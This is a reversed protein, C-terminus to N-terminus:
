EDGELSTPKEMVLAELRGEARMKKKFDYLLDGCYLNEEPEWTNHSEDYGKWKILYKWSKREGRGFPERALIAEVEFENDETEEEVPVPILDGDEDMLPIVEFPDPVDELQETFDVVKLKEIDQPPQTPRDNEDTCKKLRDYHVKPYIGKKTPIKLTVRIGDKTIEEVRYPGVWRFALKKSYGPKVKPIWVWVRDGVKISAGKVKEQYKEILKDKNRKLTDEVHKRVFSWERMTKARWKKQDYEQFEQRSKQLIAEMPFAPDWGHFLYFPTEGVDVRYATNLAFAMHRLYEDWDKQEPDLCFLKICGFIVGHTRENQGNGQPRYALTAIHKQGFLKMVMQFLKSLFQSGRDSRIFSSAGYRLLIEHYYLTATEWATIDTMPFLWVMRTFMDQVVMVYRYGNNSEPFPGTFDISLYQMPHTACINRKRQGRYRPYDKGAQCDICSKVHHQITARLKPWWFHEAIRFYTMNIGLHGAIVENHYARLIDERLSPPIVWQLRLSKRASGKTEGKRCLIGDKTLCFKDLNQRMIRRIVNGISKDKRGKLHNIVTQMWPVDMQAEKIRQRRQQALVSLSAEFAKNKDMLEKEENSIMPTNEHAGCIQKQLQSRTIVNCMFFTANDQNHEEKANNVQSIWDPLKNLNKLCNIVEPSTNIDEDKKLVEGALYDAAGNYARAVHFIQIEQFQKKLTNIEGCLEQLTPKYVGMVKNLQDVVLKSDGFCMISSIGLQIAQTLGDRIALYEQTNVTGQGYKTGKAFVVEWEPLKWIVFGTSSLPTKVKAAGDFTLIYGEKSTDIEPIPSVYVNYEKPPAFKQMVEDAQEPTLYRTSILAATAVGKSPKCIVEFDFQSLEIAWRELRGHLRASTILWKFNTRRSIVKFHAGAVLPYFTKIAHFLALVEREASHWKSEAEKLVRTAYGIPSSEGDIIQTLVSAISWENEYLVIYCPVGQKPYSLTQPSLMYKKMHEFAELAAQPFSKQKFNDENLAHLSAAVTSFYPIYKKHYIFTGVYSQMGRLTTPFPLKMIEEVDKYLPTKGEPSLENSLFTIKKCGFASKPLSLTLGYKECRQLVEETVACHLDWSGPSVWPIDDVYSRVHTLKMTKEAGPKDVLSKFITSEPNYTEMRDRFIYNLIFQYYGAADCHGFPMRTWQFHGIPCIFALKERTEPAMYVQWFGNAADAASFWDNDQFAEIIDDVRPLPRCTKKTQRNIDRYDICLRITKGDKKLPLVIASAWESQSYEILGYKLLKNILDYLQGMYEYKIRRVKHRVVTAGKKMEVKFVFNKIPPPAANKDSMFVHKYKKLIELMKQRQEESVVVESEADEGNLLGIKAKDIDEEKCLVKDFDEMDPVECFGEGIPKDEEDDYHHTTTSDIPSDEEEICDRMALLCQYKLQLGPNLYKATQSSINFDMACIEAQSISHVNAEAVKNILELDKAPATSLYNAVEENQILEKVQSIWSQTLQVRDVEMLKPDVKEQHVDHKEKSPNSLIEKPIFNHVPKPNCRFEIGEKMRHQKAIRSRERHAKRTKEAVPNEFWGQKQAVGQFPHRFAKALLRGPKLIINSSGTNILQLSYLNEQEKKYGKMITTLGDYFARGMIRIYPMMTSLDLVIAEDPKLVQKKGTYIVPLYKSKPQLPEKDMKRTFYTSIGRLDHYPVNPIWVDKPLLAGEPHLIMGAPVIFDRGLIAPPNHGNTQLVPVILGYVYDKIKIKIKTIGVVKAMTSSINGIAMEFPQYTIKHNKCFETTILTLDSGSDAMLPIEVENIEGLIYQICTKDRYIQSLDWPGWVEGDKLKLGVNCFIGSKSDKAHEEMSVSSNCTVMEQKHCKNIPCTGGRSDEEGKPCEKQLDDQAGM